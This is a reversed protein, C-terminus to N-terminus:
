RDDRYEEYEGPDDDGHGSYRQMAEVARAYLEGMETQSKLSKRKEEKLELDKEYLQRRIDAMDQDAALKLFHTTEQSSASGDRLRAEVLDMALGIMQNQRAEPTLAPREKQPKLQTETVKKRRPM